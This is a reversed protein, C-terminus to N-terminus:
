KCWYNFLQFSLPCLSYVIEEYPKTLSASNRVSFNMEDYFFHVNHNGFFISSTTCLFVNLRLCLNAGRKRDMFLLPSKAYIAIQTFIMIIKSSELRTNLLFLTFARRKSNQAEGNKLIYAEYDIITLPIVRAPEIRRFWM